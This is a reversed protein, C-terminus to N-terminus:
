TLRMQIHEFYFSACIHVKIRRVERGIAGASHLTSHGTPGNSDTTANARCDGGDVANSPVTASEVDVHSIPGLIARPNGGHLVYERFSRGRTCEIMRRTVQASSCTAQMMQRVLQTRKQRSTLNRSLSIIRSQYTRINKQTPKQILLIQHM